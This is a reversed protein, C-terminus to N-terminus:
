EAFEWKDQQSLWAKIHEMESSTYLTHVGGSKKPFGKLMTSLVNSAEQAYSIPFYDRGGPVLQNDFIQTKLYEVVKPQHVYGLDAFLRRVRVTENAEHPLANLVQDICKVDGYRAHVLLAAWVTKGWFKGPADEHLDVNDILQKTKAMCYEPDLVGMLLITDKNMIADFKNKINQMAAKNFSSANFDRLWKLVSGRISSSRDNLRTTLLYVLERKKDTAGDIEHAHKCVEACINWRYRQSDSTENEIIEELPTMGSPWDALTVSSKLADSVIKIQNACYNARIQDIEIETLEGYARTSVLMFVFIGIFHKM